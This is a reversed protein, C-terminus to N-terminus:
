VGSGEQGGSGKLVRELASAKLLCEEWEAEPECYATIGSGVQYSLYRNAANYLLSRIVVNFDFDGEHFYGISGSFLGRASPEYQRILELVRKKPAGTMSGMPFTAELIAAFGTGPRLEGAVTSIMQHVQPFTYLGFLEPVRVSGETCIRSLDNRMLDVVMVNESREKPSARLADRLAADAAPDPLRRATGKIPQATLLRGEKRLFREPSACLLYRDDQRYFGGFPTPSLASLRAYVAWPDFSEPHAFFEQCFNIEYCDGRHIHGLLARIAELYAERSMRGKMAVPLQQDDLADPAALLAAFVADPDDAEIRLATGEQWLVVEPEFFSYPAFGVVDAPGPPLEFFADQLAFSLHGFAWRRGEVFAELEPLSAGAELRQRSGAGLLLDFRGPATPYHHSELFCFINFRKLWNLM